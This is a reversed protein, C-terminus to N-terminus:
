EIAKSQYKNFTGSPDAHFLQPGNDDCGANLLAVGVPRSM